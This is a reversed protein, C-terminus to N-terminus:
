QNILEFTSLCAAIANAYKEWISEFAVANVTFLKGQGLIGQQLFRRRSGMISVTGVLLCARRDNVWLIRSDMIRGGMDLLEGHLDNCDIDLRPDPSSWVNINAWIFQGDELDGPPTCFVVHDHPELGKTQKLWGKPPRIKFRAKSDVYPEKELLEVFTHQINKIPQLPIASVVQDTTQRKNIFSARKTEYGPDTALASQHCLVLSIMIVALSLTRPREM